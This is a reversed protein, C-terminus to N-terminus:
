VSVSQAKILCKITHADLGMNSVGIDHTILARHLM